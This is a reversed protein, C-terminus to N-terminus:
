LPTPNKLKMKLIPFPNGQEDCATREFSNFGLRQYFGIAQPNQENVDVYQVGYQTIAHTTLAKGVGKGFYRPLVFLMEIKNGDIGMFAVPSNKHTAVLLLEIGSLGEKVCPILSRIDEDSLFHHTARVSEEWLFLLTDILHAARTPNVTITTDM